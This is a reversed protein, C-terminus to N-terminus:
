FFLVWERPMGLPKLKSEYQEELIKKQEESLKLEGAGTEGQRIHHKRLVGLWRMFKLGIDKEDAEKMREFSTLDKVRAMIDDSMPTDVFNSIKRITEDTNEKLDEYRVLLVDSDIKKSRSYWSAVHDFWKGNEVNGELWDQVFTDWGDEFSINATGYHFGMGWVQNWHSIMQDQANRM